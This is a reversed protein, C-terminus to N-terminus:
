EFLIACLITEYSNGSGAATDVLNTLSETMAAWEGLAQTEWAVQAAHRDHSIFTKHLRTWVLEMYDHVDDSDTKASCAPDTAYEGVPRILEMVAEKAAHKGLLIDCVCKVDYRLQYGPLSGDIAKGDPLVPLGNRITGGAFSYCLRRLFELMTKKDQM